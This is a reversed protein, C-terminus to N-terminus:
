ERIKVKVVKYDSKKMLNLFKVKSNFSNNTKNRTRNKKAYRFMQIMQDYNAGYESVNDFLNKWCKIGESDKNKLSIGNNYFVLPSCHCDTNISIQKQKTKLANLFIQELYDLHNITRNKSNSNPLRWSNYKPLRYSLREKNKQVFLTDLNWLSMFNSSDDIVFFSENWNKHFSLNIKEPHKYKDTITYSDSSPYLIVQKKSNDLWKGTLYYPYFYFNFTSDKYFSLYAGQTFQSFEKISYQRFVKKALKELKNKKSADLKRLEALHEKTGYLKILPEWSKQSSYMDVIKNSGIQVEMDVIEWEAVINKDTCSCLGFVLIMFYVQYKIKNKKM